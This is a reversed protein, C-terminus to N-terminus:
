FVAGSRSRVFRVRVHVAKKTVEKEPEGGLGLGRPAARGRGGRGKRACEASAYDDCRPQEGRCRCFGWGREVEASSSSPRRRCCSSGGWPSSPPPRRRLLRSRSDPPGASGTSRIGTLKCAVKRRRETPTAM